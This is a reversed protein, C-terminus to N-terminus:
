LNSLTGAMVAKLGLQAIEPRRTPAMVGLGGLMIAMSALNAFGCLAITIIAQSKASLSDRVSVFDIYAVFENVVLKQGLFSGAQAAEDWPIGILFAM